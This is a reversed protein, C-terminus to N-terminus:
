HIHADLLKGPQSNELVPSLSEAVKGHKRIEPLEHIVKMSVVAQLGIVAAFMHPLLVNRPRPRHGDVREKNM